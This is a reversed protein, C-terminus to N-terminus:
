HHPRRKKRTKRVARRRQKRTNLRKHNTKNANGRKTKRKAIKGTRILPPHKQFAKRRKTNRKAMMRKKKRTGWGESAWDQATEEFQQVYHPLM